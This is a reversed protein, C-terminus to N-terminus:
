PGICALKGKLENNNSQQTRLDVTWTGSMDRDIHAKYSTVNKLIGYLKYTEVYDEEPSQAAFVSANGQQYINRLQTKTLGTPAQKKRTKGPPEAFNIWARRSPSGNYAPSFFQRVYCPNQFIEDAYWKVHAAEHLMISLAGLENSDTTVTYSVSRGPNTAAALFGNQVKEETAKLTRQLDVEALFIYSGNGQDSPNEWVGFSANDYPPSPTQKAPNVFIVDLECLDTQLILPALRFAREIMERLSTNLDDPMKCEPPKYIGEGRAEPNYLQTGDDKQKLYCISAPRRKDQLGTCGAYASGSLVLALAAVLTQKIM